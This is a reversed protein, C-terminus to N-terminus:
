HPAYIRTGAADLLDGVGGAEGVTGVAGIEVLGVAIRVLTGGGCERDLVVVAVFNAM